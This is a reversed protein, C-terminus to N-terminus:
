RRQRTRVIAVVAFVFVLVAGASLVIPSFSTGAKRLDTTDITPAVMTPSPPLPTQTEARAIGLTAEASRTPLPPIEAAVEPANTTGRIYVIRQHDSAVVHLVRGRSIAVNPYELYGLVNVPPDLWQRGNWELYTVADTGSVLHLNGISDVASRSFGTQGGGQSKPIFEIPRTWTQGGDTSWQHYRGRTSARGNWFLHITGDDLVAINPQTHSGDAVELPPSWTLGDDRSVAYWLGLGPVGDPLQNEEWAVYVRGAKDVAISPFSTAVLPKVSSAGAPVSWSLGDDQSRMYYVDKDRAAYAVHIVGQQDVAINGYLVQDSIPIASTEWGRARCADAVNARSYYLTGNAGVWVLHLRGWRDVAHQPWFTGAGEPANIVDIAESWNTGNGEVCYIGNALQNSDAGSALSVEWLVKISDSADVVVFPYFLIRPNAASAASSGDFLVVPEGWQTGGSQAHVSPTPWTSLFLIVARLLLALCYKGCRRRHALQGGGPDTYQAM